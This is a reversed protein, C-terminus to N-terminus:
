ATTISINTPSYGFHKKFAFSFHSLNEFGSEYYVDVPRRKKIALQYHAHELRKQTLWKQPTTKFAKKFDRKFTNISRGTLYGFQAMTMNFMYHKEMYEALNIKGPESFDSLISDIGNDLTRLIAIAEEVKIAMINEPLKTEINFYPLLSAFLSELLPNHDLMLIKHTHPSVSSFKNETYFKKLRATTLTLVVSKYPRGSKPYKILTSLQHRPFLLTDGAGFRFTSDAQIVKMEGSIIRVLCHDELLIERNYPQDEFCALVIEAYNNQQTEAM